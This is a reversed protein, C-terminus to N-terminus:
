VISEVTNRCSVRSCIHSRPVVRILLSLCLFTVLGVVPVFLLCVICLYYAAYETRLYSNLVGERGIRPILRFPGVFCPASIRVLMNAQLDTWCDRFQSKFGYDFQGRNMTGVAISVQVFECDMDDHM